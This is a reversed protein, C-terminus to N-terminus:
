FIGVFDPAFIFLGRGFRPLRALRISTAIRSLREPRRDAKVPRHPEPRARGHNRRHDSFDHSGARPTHGKTRPGPASYQSPTAPEMRPGCFVSGAGTCRLHRWVARGVEGSRLAPHYPRRRGTDAAAPLCVGTRLRGPSLRDGGASWKGPAPPKTSKDAGISEIVSALTGPTAALIEQVPRGDLYKDYPNLESM